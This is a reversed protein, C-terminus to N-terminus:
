PRSHPIDMAVSFELDLVSTEFRVQPYVRIIPFVLKAARFALTETYSEISTIGDPQYTTIDTLFVGGLSPSEM